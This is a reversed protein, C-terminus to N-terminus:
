MMYERQLLDYCFITDLPKFSFYRYMDAIAVM